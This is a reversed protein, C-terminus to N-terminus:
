WMIWLLHRRLYVNLNYLIFADFSCVVYAFPGVSYHKCGGGIRFGSKGSKGYSPKIFINLYLYRKTILCMSYKKKSHILM